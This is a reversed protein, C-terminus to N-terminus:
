SILKALLFHIFLAFLRIELSYKKPVKHKLYKKAWNRICHTHKGFVDLLAHCVEDTIKNKKHLKFIVSKLL